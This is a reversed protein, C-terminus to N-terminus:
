KFVEYYVEEKNKKIIKNEKLDILKQNTKISDLGGLRAVFPGVKLYNLKSLLRSPVQDYELGTYLATKLDFSKAIVLHDILSELHWEGGMFVICTIYNKYKHILKEFASPNLVLGLGKNKLDVSHCGPCSLPCGSIHISLCIENPIEQFTVQLGSYRM